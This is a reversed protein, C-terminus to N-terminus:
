HRGHRHLVSDTAGLARSGIRVVGDSRAGDRAEVNLPRGATAGVMLPRSAVVPRHAIANRGRSRPVGRDGAWSPDNGSQVVDPIRAVRAGVGADVSPLLRALAAACRARSDDMAATPSWGLRGTVDHSPAFPVLTRDTAIAEPSEQGPVTHGGM